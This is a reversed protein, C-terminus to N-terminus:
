RTASEPRRDGGAIAQNGGATGQDRQCARGDTAPIQRRRNQGREYNVFLPNVKEMEEAIFGLDKEDRGKWKFTVPRM